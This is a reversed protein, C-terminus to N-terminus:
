SMTNAHKMCSAKQRRNYFVTQATRLTPKLIPFRLDRYSGSEDVVDTVSRKTMRELM